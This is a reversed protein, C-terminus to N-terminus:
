FKVRIGVSVEYVLNLVYSGLKGAKIKPTEPTLIRFIARKCKRQSKKLELEDMVGAPLLMPMNGSAAFVTLHV